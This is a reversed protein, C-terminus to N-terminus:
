HDCESIIGVGPLPVKVLTVPAPGSVVTNEKWCGNEQEWVWGGSRRGCTSERGGRTLTSGLRWSEAGLDNKRVHLAMWSGAKIM